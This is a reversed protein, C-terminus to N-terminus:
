KIGGLVPKLKAKLFFVFSFSFHSSILDFNYSQYLAFGVIFVSRRIELEMNKRSYQATIAFIFIKKYFVGLRMM